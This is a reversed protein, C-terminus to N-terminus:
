LFRKITKLHHTRKGTDSNIIGKKDIADIRVKGAAHIIKNSSLLIGVHVIEDMEDFFALDGVAVEDLKKVLKGQLAQQKADRAINLGVLKYMTQSFGSCDVGLITKGGWLYPANLWRMANAILQEEKNTITNTLLPKGKYIYEKNAIIGKKNKLNVLFAGLPVQMTQGNIVITNLFEPALQFCTSSITTSDSPSILHTTLWGVYGDFLSEVKLWTDDKQKIIKVAEGFLLQNSMESRHNPRKRMPAAPVTVVAYDM